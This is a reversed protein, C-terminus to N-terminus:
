VVFLFVAGTEGALFSKMDYRLVAKGATRGVPM